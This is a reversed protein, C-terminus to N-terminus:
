LLGMSGDENGDWMAGLPIDDEDLDIEPIDELTDLIGESSLNGFAFDLYSEVVHIRVKKNKTCAQGIPLKKIYNMYNNLHFIKKIDEKSYTIINFLMGDLNVKINSINYMKHEKSESSGELEQYKIGSKNFYDLINEAEEHSFVLDYDSNITDGGWARSGILLGTDLLKNILENM